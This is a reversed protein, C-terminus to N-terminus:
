LFSIGYKQAVQGRDAGEAHFDRLFDDLGAPVTIILVTATGKSTVDWSHPIGRPLFVFSRPGAEYVEEGCQVVISGDLVYFCEDERSHVHLPAGGTTRSEILTLAGGTTSASAKVGPDSADLGDEPGLMYPRIRHQADDNEPM